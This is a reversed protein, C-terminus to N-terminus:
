YGVEIYIYFWAYDLISVRKQSKFLNRRSNQIQAILVCKRLKCVQKGTERQVCNRCVKCDTEILCPKCLGCKSLRTKKTHSDSKIVAMKNERTSWLFHFLTIAQSRM